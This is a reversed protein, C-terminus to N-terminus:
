HLNHQLQFLFSVIMVIGVIWTWRWFRRLERFWYLSMHFEGFTFQIEGNLFEKESLKYKRQYYHREGHKCQLGENLDVDLKDVLWELSDQTTCDLELFEELGPWTKFVITNSKPGFPVTWKEQWNETLVSKYSGATMSKLYDVAVGFSAGKWYATEQVPMNNNDDFVRKQVTSCVTDQERVRYFDKGDPSFFHVARVLQRPHVQRAGLQQLQQM